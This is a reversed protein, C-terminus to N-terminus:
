SNIKENVTLVLTPKTQNNRYNLVQQTKQCYPTKAANVLNRQQVERAAARVELVEIKKVV